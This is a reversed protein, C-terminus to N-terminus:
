GPIFAACGAVGAIGVRLTGRGGCGPMRGTDVFGAPEAVGPDRAVGADEPVAAAGEFGPGAFRGTGRGGDTIVFPSFPRGFKEDEGLGDVGDLLLSEIARGADGDFATFEAGRGDSGEFVIVEVGLGVPGVFEGLETDLGLSGAFLSARGDFGRGGCFV